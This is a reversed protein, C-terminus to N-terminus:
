LTVKNFRKDKQPCDKVPCPVNELKTKYMAERHKRLEALTAFTETSDCGQVDCRRPKSNYFISIHSILKDQADFVAKCGAPSCRFVEASPDAFQCGRQSDLHRRLEARNSFAM